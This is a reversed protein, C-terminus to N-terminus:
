DRPREAESLWGTHSLIGVFLTELSRSFTPCKALKWQYFSEEGQGEFTIMAEDQADIEQLIGLEKLNLYKQYKKKSDGVMAFFGFAVKSKVYGQLKKIDDKIEDLSPPFAKLEVAVFKGEEFRGFTIDPRARKSIERDEAFIQYPKEFKKKRMIELCKAFLLCRLQEEFIPAYFYGNGLEKSFEQWADQFVMSYKRLVRQADFEKMRESM